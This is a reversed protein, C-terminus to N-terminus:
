LTNLVQEKIKELTDKMNVVIKQIEVHNCKSGLTNIERGIEQAIFGLKKGSIDAEEMTKIFYNLHNNLRMKEESVDLKELYYILEQQFRNEDYEGIENLSNLLRQRISAVREEEYPEVQNLLLGITEIQKTFEKELAVGEQRRFTNVATCSSTVLALIKQKEDDELEADDSTMVDPMRMLISLYDVNEQGIAQNLSKLEEYYTKALEQNIHIDSSKGLHTVTVYFDIKGRSLTDSIIKRMENELAKYQSPIKTYIDFSKSNLTRIEVQINKGSIEASVKGYGTM